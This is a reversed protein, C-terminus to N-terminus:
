HRLRLRPEDEDPIEEAHELWVNGPFRYLRLAPQNNVFTRTVIVVWTSRFQRPSAHIVLGHEPDHTAFKVEIRQWISPRRLPRTIVEIDSVAYARRDRYVWVSSLQNTDNWRFRRRHPEDNRRRQVWRVGETVFQEINNIVYDYVVQEADDWNNVEAFVTGIRDRNLLRTLRYRRRMIKHSCRVGVRNPELTSKALIVGSQFM